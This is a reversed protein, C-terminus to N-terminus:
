ADYTLHTPAHHTKTTNVSSAKRHERMNEAIHHERIQEAISDYGETSHDKSWAQKM